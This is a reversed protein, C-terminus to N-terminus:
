IRFRYFGECEKGKFETKIDNDKRSIAKGFLRKGESNAVLIYYSHRMFRAGKSKIMMIVNPSFHIEENHLTRWGRTRRGGTAWINEYCLLVAYYICTYSTVEM